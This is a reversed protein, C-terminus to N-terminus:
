AGHSESGRVRRLSVAGVVAVGLGTWQAASLGMAMTGSDRWFEIVFRGLGWMVLYRRFLDGERPLRDRWRWLLVFMALCWAMTYLQTPHRLADHQYCAWPVRTPQGYCCGNLFCGIRGVAEGAALAPAFLDGDLAPHGVLTQGGRRGALRGAGRGPHNAWRLPHRVSGAPLGAVGPSRRAALAGAAGRGRWGGARGRRPLGDGRDGASAAASRGGGARDRRPLGAAHGACWTDDPQPGGGPM